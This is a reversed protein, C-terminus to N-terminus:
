SRFDLGVVHGFITAGGDTTSLIFIDKSGLGPTNVPIQGQHWLVGIPFTLSHSGQNRVDLTLRAIRNAIPWNSVSLTADSDLTLVVYKGLSYNITIPGSAFVHQVPDMWPDPGAPGQAGAHLKAITMPLDDAVAVLPPPERVIIM